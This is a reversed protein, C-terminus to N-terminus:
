LRMGQKGIAVLPVLRAPRLLGFVQLLQEDGVGPLVPAVQELAAISAKGRYKGIAFNLLMRMIRRSVSIYFDIPLPM